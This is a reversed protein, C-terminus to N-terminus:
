IWSINIATSLESQNITGAKFNDWATVLNQVQSQQLTLGNSIKFEDIREFENVYWDQLIFHRNTGLIGVALGDNDFQQFTIEDVSLQGGFLLTDTSNTDGKNDIYTAQFVNAIEFSRVDITYTDNGSGGSLHSLLGGKRLLGGSVEIQDDGEGGNYIGAIGTISIKDNGAGAKVVSANGSSSIVDNGEGTLIINYNGKGFVRDDGSNSYIFNNKGKSFIVDNGEGGDILSKEGKTAIIDNGQGGFSLVNEGNTLIKDDYYSISLDLGINSLDLTIDSMDVDIDIDINIKSLDINIESLNLDFEQSNLFRELFPPLKFNDLNFWSPDAAFSFNDLALGSLDIKVDSLDPIQLNDGFIINNKGFAIISDAGQGGIVLNSTGYSIITDDGENGFALNNTGYLLISDKGSNSFVINNSGASIIADQQNSALVVNNKGFTVVFSNDQGSSILNNMGFSFLTDQNPKIISFDTIFTGSLSVNVVPTNSISIQPAALNPISLDPISLNPISLDPILINLNWEPLIVEVGINSLKTFEQKIDKLNPLDITVDSLTDGFAM